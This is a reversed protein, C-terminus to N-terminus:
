FCACMIQKYLKAPLAFSDLKFNGKGDNIYLRDQYKSSGSEYEYGGSAIYVDPKGDGNADFILIGEDKYANFEPNTSQCIKKDSSEM